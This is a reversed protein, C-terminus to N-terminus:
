ALFSSLEEEELIGIEFVDKMEMNKFKDSWDIKVTSKFESSMEEDLDSMIQENAFKFAPPLISLKNLREEKITTRKRLKQAM